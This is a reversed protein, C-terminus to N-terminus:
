INKYLHIYEEIPKYFEYIDHVNKQCYDSILSYEKQSLNLFWNIGDALSQPKNIDAIFGTKKHKLLQAPGSNNFIICPTGCSLSEIITKGFAELISPAMFFSAGSYIKSLEENSDIEGLYTVSYEKLLSRSKPSINGFIAIEYSSRDTFKLSYFFEDFGKYRLDINSAGILLIKKRKEIKYKDYLYNRNRPYFSEFDITNIITQTKFGNLIESNRAEESLWKSIGIIKPNSKKIFYRKLRSISRMFFPVRSQDPFKNFYSNKILKYDYYYGASFPWMDRITWIIPKKIKAIQPFSILGNIWHLHIIDAKKYWPHWFIGFGILNLDFNYFDKKVLLISFLKNLARLILYKFKKLPSNLVIDVKYFFDPKGNLLLVRSDIGKELLQLHLFYAGKAAGSNLNGSLIHM